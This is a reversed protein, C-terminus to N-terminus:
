VGDFPVETRALDAGTSRARGADDEPDSTGGPTPNPLLVGGGPVHSDPLGAVFELTLDSAAGTVGGQLGGGTRSGLAGGFFRSFFCSGPCAEM